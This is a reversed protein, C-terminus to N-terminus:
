YTAHLQVNCGVEKQRAEFTRLVGANSHANLDLQAQVNDLEATLEAVSRLEIGEPRPLERGESLAQKHAAEWAIREQEIAEYEANIEDTAEDLKARSNQLIELSEDKINKFEEDVVSFKVTACELIFHFM